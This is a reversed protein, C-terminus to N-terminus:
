RYCSNKTDRGLAPLSLYRTEEIGIPGLQMVHAARTWFPALLVAQGSACLSLPVSRYLRLGIVGENNYVKQAVGRLRHGRGWWAHDVAPCRDEGATEIRGRRARIHRTVKIHRSTKIDRTTKIDSPLTSEPFIRVGRYRM